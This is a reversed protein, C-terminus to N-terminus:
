ISRWLPLKYVHQEGSKSWIKGMEEKEDAGIRRGITLPTSVPSCETLGITKNKELHGHRVPGDCTFQKSLMDQLSNVESFEKVVDVFVRKRVTKCM